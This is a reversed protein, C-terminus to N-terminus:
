WQGEINLKAKWDKRFKHLIALILIGIGSVVEKSNEIIFDIIKNM